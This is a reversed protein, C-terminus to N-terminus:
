LIEDGARNSRGDMECAFCFSSPLLLCLISFAVVVRALSVPHRKCPDFECCMVRSVIIFLTSSPMSEPTIRKRSQTNRFADTRVTSVNLDADPSMNAAFATNILTTSASPNTALAQNGLLNYHFRKNPAAAVISPSQSSAVVVNSSVMDSVVM